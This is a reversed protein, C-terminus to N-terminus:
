RTVVLVIPGPGPLRAAAYAAFCAGILLQGEQGINILGARTAAIAGVAVILLPAMTTLTLGWAGPSRISGDLLARWVASASGGTASVLVASLALAGLVSATYLLVTRAARSEFM